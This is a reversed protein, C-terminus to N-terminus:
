ESAACAAASRLHYDSHVADAFLPDKGCLGPQEATNTRSSIPRRCSSEAAGVRVISPAVYVSSRSGPPHSAAM